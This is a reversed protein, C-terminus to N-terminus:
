NPRLRLAYCFAPTLGIAFDPMPTRTCLNYRRVSTDESTYYLTCQDGALEIWDTGRPGTPIAFRELANGHRDFKLLAVQEDTSGAIGAQGIYVNGNRDFVCSEPLNYTGSGPPRAFADDLIAGSASYYTMDPNGFRTALINGGPSFCMGTTVYNQFNGIDPG